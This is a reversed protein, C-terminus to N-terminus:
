LKRTLFGILAGLMAAGADWWRNGKSRADVDDIREHAEDICDNVRAKETSMAGLLAEHREDLRKEYEDFRTTLKDGLGDISDKLDERTLSRGNRIAM